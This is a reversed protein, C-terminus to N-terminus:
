NMFHAKKRLDRVTTARGKNGTGDKSKMKSNIYRMRAGYKAKLSYINWSSCYYHLCFHVSSCIYTFLNAEEVKIQNWSFDKGECIIEVSERTHGWLKRGDTHFAGNTQSYIRWDCSRNQPVSQIWQWVEPDLGGNPKDRCSVM